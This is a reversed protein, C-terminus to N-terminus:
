LPFACPENLSFSILAFDLSIRPSSSSLGPGFSSIMLYFLPIFSGLFARIDIAFCCHISKNRHTNGKGWSRIEAKLWVSRQQMLCIMLCVLLLAERDVKLLNVDVHMMIVPGSEAEVETWGATVEYM